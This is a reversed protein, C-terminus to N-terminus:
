EGVARIADDVQQRIDCVLDVVDGDWEGGLERKPLRFEKWAADSARRLAWRAGAEFSAALLCQVELKQIAVSRYNRAEQEIKNM